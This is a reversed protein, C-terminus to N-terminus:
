LYRLIGAKIRRRVTVVNKWGFFAAAEKTSNFTTGSQPDFVKRSKIKSMKESFGEPKSKGVAAIKIKQKTEESHSRGWLPSSEGKKGFRPNNIGSMRKSHDEFIGLAKKSELIKEIVEKSRKSGTQTQIFLQRAEAYSRVSPNYRAQYSRKQNCMNWFSYVLGKVNPYMKCLLRHCLFHEKATLLVINSHTRWQKSNGFGGMCAPIIHHAEYYIYNPNTSKLKKRKERKAKQIISNYISTYNM